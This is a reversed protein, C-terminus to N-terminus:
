LVDLRMLAAVGRAVDGIRVDEDLAELDLRGAQYGIHAATVILEHLWEAEHDESERLRIEDAFARSHALVDYAVSGAVGEANTFDRVAEAQWDPLTASTM